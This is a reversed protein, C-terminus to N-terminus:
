GLIGVLSRRDSFNNGFGTSWESWESDLFNIIFWEDPMSMIHNNKRGIIITIHNKVILRPIDTMPHNYYFSIWFYLFIKQNKM